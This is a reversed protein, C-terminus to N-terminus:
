SCLSTFCACELTRVKNPNNIQPIINTLGSRQVAKGSDGKEFCVEM